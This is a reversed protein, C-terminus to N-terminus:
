LLAFGLHFKDTTIFLRLVFPSQLRDKAKFAGAITVHRPRLRALRGLPQILVDLKPLSPLEDLSDDSLLFCHLISRFPEADVVAGGLV